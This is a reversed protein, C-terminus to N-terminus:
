KINGCEVATQSIKSGRGVAAFVGVALTASMRNYKQKNLVESVTNLSRTKQLFEPCFAGLHLVKWLDALAVNTQKPAYL